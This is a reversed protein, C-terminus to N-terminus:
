NIYEFDSNNKNQGSLQAKLATYSLNYNLSAEKISNYITNTKINVVKRKSPHNSKILSMSINKKHAESLKIDKKKNSIKMKTEESVIQNFGGEGGDTMNCLSGNGLDRRGYKSILLVELDCAEKVSLKDEIIDVSYGHKNVINHWHANRYTSRYPRSPNGIGVYFVENTDLRRHTYVVKNNVTAM